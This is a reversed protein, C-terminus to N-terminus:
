SNTAQNSDIVLQASIEQKDQRAQRQAQDLSQITEETTGNDRDVGNRSFIILQDGNNLSLNNTGAPNLLADALSFQLVKIDRQHNIERVVLAYDLDATPNFASDQ